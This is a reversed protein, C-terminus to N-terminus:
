WETQGDMHMADRLQGLLSTRAGGRLLQTNWFERDAKSPESQARWAALRVQAMEIVSRYEAEWRVKAPYSESWAHNNDLRRALRAPTGLFCGASILAGWRPYDPHYARSVTVYRNESGVPGIVLHHWASGVDCTGQLMAAPGIRIQEGSSAVRAHGSVFANAFLSAGRVMAYGTVQATGELYSHHSVVAHGGVQSYQTMHSEDSLEAEDSIQSQGSMHSDRLVKARNVVRAYDTLECNDDVQAYPGIHANATARPHTSPTLAFMAAADTIVQMSEDPTPTTPM